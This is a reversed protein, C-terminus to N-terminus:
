KKLAGCSRTMENSCRGVRDSWCADAERWNSRRIDIGWRRKFGSTVSPTQAPEMDERAAVSRLPKETVSIITPRSVQVAATDIVFPRTLDTDRFSCYLTGSLGVIYMQSFEYIHPLALGADRGVRGCMFQLDIYLSAGKDFDVELAEPGTSHSTVGRAPRGDKLNWPRAFNGQYCVIDKSLTRTQGDGTIQVEVTAIRATSDEWVQDNLNGAKHLNWRHELPYFVFFLFALVAIFALPIGVLIAISWLIVRKM